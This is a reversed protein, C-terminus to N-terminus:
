TVAYIMDRQLNWIAVFSAYKMGANSCETGM